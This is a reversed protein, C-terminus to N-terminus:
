LLTNNHHEIIKCIMFEFMAASVHPLAVDVTVFYDLPRSEALVTFGRCTYLPANGLGSMVMKFKYSADGVKATVDYDTLGSSQNKFVTGQVETDLAKCTFPRPENNTM